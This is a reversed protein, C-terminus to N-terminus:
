PVALQDRGNGARPELVDRQRGRGSRDRLALALLWRRVWESVGRELYRHSVAALILSLAISAFAYAGGPAIWRGLGLEPMFHLLAIQVIRHVLYLSFSIDGLWVLTRPMRLPCAKHLMVVALLLAASPAGWVLPGHMGWGLLLMWVFVTAATAVAAKAWFPPLRLRSRFVAAIVAGAAFEWMMANSVLALLDNEVRPTAYADLVPRGALLPVAVLLLAFLAGLVLWRHRGFLMSVAFAVYFWVEYCLTWGVVLPAWGFFPTSVDSRPYFVLAKALDEAMRADIASEPDILVFV